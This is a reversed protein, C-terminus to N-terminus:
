QGDKEKIDKDPERLIDPLQIKRLVDEAISRAALMSLSPKIAQMTERVATTNVALMGIVGSPLKRSIIGILEFDENLVGSGSSGFNGPITYVDLPYGEGAVELRGSYFGEFILVMDKAFIGLPAALNFAKSGIKPNSSAIRIPKAEIKDKTTILCLDHIKNTAIILADYKNDHIDSVRIKKSGECVHKATLVITNTNNVQDIIIGSAVARGDNLAIDIKVFSETPPVINLTHHAIDCNTPQSSICSVFLLILPLILISRINRTLKM